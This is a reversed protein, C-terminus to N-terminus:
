QLLLKNHPVEQTQFFLPQSLQQRPMEFPNHKKLPLVWEDQRVPNHSKRVISGGASSIMNPGVVGKQLYLMSEDQEEGRKDEPILNLRNAQKNSNVLKDYQAVAGQVTVVKNNSTRFPSQSLNM